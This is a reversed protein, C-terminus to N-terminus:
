SMWAILGPFSVGVDANCTQRPRYASECNDIQTELPQNARESVDVETELPQYGLLLLELVALHRQCSAM